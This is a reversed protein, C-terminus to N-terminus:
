SKPKLSRLFGVLDAMQRADLTDFRPMKKEPDSNKIHEEIRVDSLNQVQASRLDVLPRGLAKFLGANGQGEAGHCFRCSNAYIAQGSAHNDAAALLSASTILICAVIPKM